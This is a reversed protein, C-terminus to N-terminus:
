ISVNFWRKCTNCIVPKLTVSDQADFFYPINIHETKCYPCEVPPMSTSKSSELTLFRDIFNKFSLCTGDIGAANCRIQHILSASLMSSTGSIHAQELASSLNRIGRNGEEAKIYQKLQDLTIAKEFIPTDTITSYINYANKHFLIPSSM